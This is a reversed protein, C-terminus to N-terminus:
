VILLHTGIYQTLHNGPHYSYMVKVRGLASHVHRLIVGWAGICNLYPHSAENGPLCRPECHSPAELSSKVSAAFPPLWAVAKVAKVVSLTTRRLHVVVVFCRRGARLRLAALARPRTSSAAGMCCGCLRQAGISPLSGYRGVGRLACLPWHGREIAALELAGGGRGRAVFHSAAQERGPVTQALLLGVARCGMGGAADFGAM